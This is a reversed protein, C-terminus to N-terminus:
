IINVANNRSGTAPMDCATLQVPGTWLTEPIYCRYRWALLRRLQILACGQLYIGVRRLLIRGDDIYDQLLAFFIEGTLQYM